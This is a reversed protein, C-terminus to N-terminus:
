NYPVEQWIKPGACNISKKRLDMRKKPLTYNLQASHRTENIIKTRKDLTLRPQQKHLAYM